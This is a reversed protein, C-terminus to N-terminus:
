PSHGGGGRQKDTASSVLPNGQGPGASGSFHSQQSVRPIATIDGSLLEERTQDGHPCASCRVHSAWSWGLGAAELEDTTRPFAPHVPLVDRLQDELNGLDGEM